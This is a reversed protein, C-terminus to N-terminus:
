SCLSYTPLCRGFHAYAMGPLAYVIPSAPSHQLGVLFGERARVERNGKTEDVGLLEANERFVLEREYVSCM